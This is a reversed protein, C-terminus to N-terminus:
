PQERFECTYYRSWGSGQARWRGHEKICLDESSLQDPLTVAWVWLAIGGFFGIWLFGWGLLHWFERTPKSM